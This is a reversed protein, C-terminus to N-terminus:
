NDIIEGQKKGRQNKNHYTCNAILKAELPRIWEYDIVILFFLLNLVLLRCHLVEPTAIYATYVDTHSLSFILM